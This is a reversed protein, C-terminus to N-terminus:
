GSWFGGRKVRVSVKWVLSFGTLSRFVCLCLILCSHYCNERWGEGLGGWGRGRGEDREEEGGRMGKGRMGEGRVEGKGKGGGVLIAHRPEKESRDSVFEDEVFAEFAGMQPSACTGAM